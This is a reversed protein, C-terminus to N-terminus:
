VSRKSLIWSRDMFSGLADITSQASEGRQFMQRELGAHAVSEEGAGREGGLVSTRWDIGIAVRETM